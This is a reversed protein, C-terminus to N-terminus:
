FDRGQISESGKEDASLYWESPLEQNGLFMIESDGIDLVCYVSLCHIQFPFGAVDQLRHSRPPM